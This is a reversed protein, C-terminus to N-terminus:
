TSIAKMRAWSRVESEAKKWLGTKLKRTEQNWM